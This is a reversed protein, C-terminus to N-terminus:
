MLLAGGTRHLCEYSGGMATTVWTQNRLFVKDGSTRKDKWTVDNVGNGTRVLISM